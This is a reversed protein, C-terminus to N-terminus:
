FYDVGVFEKWNKAPQILPGEYVQKAEEETVHHATKMPRTVSDVLMWFSLVCHSCCHHQSLNLETLHWPKLFRYYQATQWQNACAFAPNWGIQPQMSWTNVPQWNSSIPWFCPWGVIRIKRSKFSKGSILVSLRFYKESLNTIRRRAKNGCIQPHM